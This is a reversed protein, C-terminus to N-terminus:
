KAESLVAEFRVEGGTEIALTAVLADLREAVRAPMDIGITVRGKANELELLCSFVRPDSPKRDMTWRTVKMTEDLM